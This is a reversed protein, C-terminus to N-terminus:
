FEITMTITDLNNQKKRKSEKIKQGSIDEKEELENKFKYLQDM